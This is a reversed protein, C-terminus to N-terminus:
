LIEEVWVKVDEHSQVVECIGEAFIKSHYWDANYTKSQWSRSSRDWYGKSSKIIYFLSEPEKRPMSRLFDIIEDRDTMTQLKKFIGWPSYM